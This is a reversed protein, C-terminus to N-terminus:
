ACCALPSSSSSITVAGLYTEDPLREAIFDSVGSTSIGCDTVTM